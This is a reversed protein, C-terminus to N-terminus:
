TIPGSTIDNLRVNRWFYAAHDSALSEFALTQVRGCQCKTEVRKESLADMREQDRRTYTKHSGVLRLGCATANPSSRATPPPLEADVRDLIGALERFLRVFHPFPALSPQLPGSRVLGRKWREARCLAKGGSRSLSPFRYEASAKGKPICYQRGFGLSGAM